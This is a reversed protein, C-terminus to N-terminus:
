SVASQRKEVLADFEAEYREALSVFARLFNESVDVDRDGYFLHQDAARLGVHIIHAGAGAEQVPKPANMKSGFLRDDLHEFHNRADQLDSVDLSNMLDTIPSGIAKASRIMWELARDVCTIFLHLEVLADAYCKERWASMFFEHQRVALKRYRPMWKLAGASAGTQDIMDVLTLRRMEELIATAEPPHESMEIQEPAKM